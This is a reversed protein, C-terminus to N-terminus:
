LLEIHGGVDAYISRYQAQRPLANIIHLCPCDIAFFVLEEETALPIPAEVERFDFSPPSAADHYRSSDMPRM